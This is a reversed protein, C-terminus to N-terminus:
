SREGIRQIEDRLWNSLHGDVDTAIHKNPIRLITFGQSEIFATRQVEERHDHSSGDVEIVVLPNLCAFDAVWPGIPVQRRFRYGLKGNRIRLWLAAESVPMHGRNFKALQGALHNHEARAM